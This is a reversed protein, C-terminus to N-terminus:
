RKEKRESRRRRTKWKKKEEEEKCQSKGRKMKRGVTRHGGRGGAGGRTNRKRM